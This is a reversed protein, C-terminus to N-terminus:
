DEQKNNNVLWEFAQIPTVSEGSPLEIVSRCDTRFLRRLLKPFTAGEGINVSSASCVCQEIARINDGQLLAEEIYRKHNGICSHFYLHPNPMYDDFEGHSSFERNTSVSGRLDIVYFAYMKIKLIPSDSFIADLFLKRNTNDKFVDHSDGFEDYIYSSTNKAYTEYMDPDFNTLYGSAIFELKSGGNTRIPYLHKNCMFYDMIESEESANKIQAELGAYTIRQNDLIEILEEYKRLNINISRQTEDIGRRTDSLRQKKSYLEFGSLVSRIAFSRMDFNRAINEILTKYTPEKLTGDENCSDGETLSRVLEREKDTLPSNEFHWPLLKSILSQILHWTKINIKEGFVAASKLEDNIYFRMDAKKGSIRISSAIFAHLEPLEKWGVYTNTFGSSIAEICKKSAAGGYSVICLTSHDHVGRTIEEMMRLHTTGGDFIATRINRNRLVFNLREHKESFRNALLARLTAIFSRDYGSSISDDYDTINEFMNNATRNTLTLENLYTSFVCNGGTSDLNVQYFLAGRFYLPM